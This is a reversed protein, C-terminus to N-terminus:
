KVIQSGEIAKSYPPVNVDGGFGGGLQGHVSCLPVLLCGMAWFIVEFDFENGCNM